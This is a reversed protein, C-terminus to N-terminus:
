PRLDDHLRVSSLEIVGDPCQWFHLRRAQSTNRQVAVRWCTAGDGRTVAPANGGASSRLQHVERGELEVHLGTLVEVVVQVVKGYEAGSVAVSALFDNGLRYTRLPRETKQGAPIRRAWALHVDFRFQDVPDTFLHGDDASRGTADQLAAHAALLRQHDQTLTRHRTRATALETRLRDAKAQARRIQDVLQAREQQWADDDQGSPEVPDPTSGAAPEPTVPPDPDPNPLTLWAPGGALIAPAPHVPAHDDVDLDLEWDPATAALRAVLVEGPSVLDPLPLDTTTVQDRGLRCRTGPLLEVTIADAEVTACRVLVQDGPRYGALAAAPDTLMGTVDLRGADAQWTGHVRMGGAVLQDATVDGALAEPWITAVPGDDLRVMARGGIIGMVTGVAPRADPHASTTAAPIARWADSVLHHTVRERDAPGYAFRLPAADRDALWATGTPYVRCAGGFAELGPPLRRALALTAAGTTITVVDVLDGLAAHVEDVDAFPATSGTATSCLVVPRDRSADLLADALRDADAATAVLAGATPGTPAATAEPAPTLHDLVEATVQGPALPGPLWYRTQDLPVEPPYVRVMGPRLGDHDPLAHDLVRVVRADVVVIEQDQGLGAALTAVDVAPQNTREDCAVVVYTRLRDLDALRGALARAALDDTITSTGAM